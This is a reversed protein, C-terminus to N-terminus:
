RIPALNINADKNSNLNYINSYGLSVARDKMQRAKELNGTQAYYVAAWYAADKGTDETLAKEIMADGDIKKGSLSKAMAAYAIEPFSDSHTISARNYDAEAQKKDNLGEKYVYARIMLPLPDDANLMIAENLPALAEKYNKLAINNLAVEIMAENSDPNIQLAKQASSLAELPLGAARQIKSNLILLPATSEMKLARAIATQADATKDLALASRAVGALIDPDEGGPASLLRQYANYADQYNGSRYAIISLLFDLPVTNTTKSSAYNLAAAVSPYDKQGLKILSNMPTSSSDTLTFAILYNAAADSNQNISNYFDGIRCYTLYNTPDAQEVEKILDRADEMEGKLMKAKAMGFFAEQSRSKMRQMSAFTAYAEDPMNLNLYINGKKYLNAYSTPDIELAKNISEIAKPLNDRAILIDTLLAYNHAMQDKEKAPTYEIAKVIDLYAEDLRHLQLYIGARDYLAQYDNPNNKIWETNGDLVAKTIPDIQQASCLLASSALITGVILHRIKM